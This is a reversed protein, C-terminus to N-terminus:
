PNVTAMRRISSLDHRLRAMQSLLKEQEARACLLGGGLRNYLRMLKRAEMELARSPDLAAVSPYYCSQASTRRHNKM